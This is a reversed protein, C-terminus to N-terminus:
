EMKENCWPLDVNYDSRHPMMDSPGVVTLIASSDIVSESNKFYMYLIGDPFHNVMSIKFIFGLETGKQPSFWVGYPTYSILNISYNNTHYQHSNTWDPLKKFLLSLDVNIWCPEKGDNPHFGIISKGDSTYLEGETSFAAKRYLFGFKQNWYSNKEVWSNRGSEMWDQLSYNEKYHGDWWRRAVGITSIPPLCSLKGDIFIKEIKPDILIDKRQFIEDWKNLLTFFQTKSDENEFCVDFKVKPESTGAAYDLASGILDFLLGM